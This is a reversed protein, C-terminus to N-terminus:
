KYEHFILKIFTILLWVYSVFTIVVGLIMLTYTINRKTKNKM